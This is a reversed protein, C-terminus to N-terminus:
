ENVEVLELTERLHTGYFRAPENEKTIEFFMAGYVAPRSKWREPNMAVWEQSGVEDLISEMQKKTLYAHYYGDPFTHIGNVRFTKVASRVDRYNITEKNIEILM